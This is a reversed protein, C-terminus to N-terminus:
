WSIVSQDRFFHGSTNFDASSAMWVITEAGKAVSRDAASGGMDTRVWGPCVANVLVGKSQFASALQLTIANITTKSICYIPAWTSIGSCIAGGGSSVNIIRSGRELMKAFSRAILLPGIANTHMTDFILEDEVTLINKDAQLLIGANNVLVDLKDVLSQVIPVAAQISEVKSVEMPVFDVRTGEARLQAVAKLGREESRASLLVHFGRQGLQRAVEFGIGKNAGTILATPM